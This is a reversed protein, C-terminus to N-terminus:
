LPLSKKPPFVDKRDVINEVTKPKLFIQTKTLKDAPFIIQL